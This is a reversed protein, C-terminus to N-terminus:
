IGDNNNRCLKYAFVTQERSSSNVPFSISFSKGEKM